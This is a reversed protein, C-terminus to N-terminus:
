PFIQRSLPYFSPAEEVELVAIKVAPTLNWNLNNILSTAIGRMINAGGRNTVVTNRQTALLYNIVGRTTTKGNTGTILIIYDLDKTLPKILFPWYLEVLIGPRSTANKVTLKSTITAISAFLKVIILLLFM